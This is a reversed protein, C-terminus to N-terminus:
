QQSCGHTQQFTTPTATPKRPSGPVSPAMHRHGALCRQPELALHSVFLLLLMLMLMMLCGLSHPSFVSRGLANSRAHWAHMLKREGALDCVLCLSRLALARAARPDFRQRTGLASFRSSHSHPHTSVKDTVYHLFMAHAGLTKLDSKWSNSGWRWHMHTWQDAYLDTMLKEDAGVYLANLGYGGHKALVSAVLEFHSQNPRLMYICGRMGYSRLSQAVQEPSLRRGHMAQNSRADLITSCVGAPARLAFVSDVGGEGSGADSSEAVCLMDADLLCVKHFQTLTLVHFKTFSYDIWGYMRGGDPAAGAATFKKWEQHVARAKLLPVELVLDFLRALDSRAGSSVCPSVLVVLSARTGRSRLSQGLVLAGAVYSDGLMVLTVFACKSPDTAADVVSADSGGSVGNSSSSSASTAAATSTAASAAATTVAQDDMRKRTVWLPEDLVVDAHQEGQASRNGRGGGRGGGGGEWGAAAAGGAGAGAGAGQNRQYSGGGGGGGGGGTHADRNGWSQQQQGGGGGHRYGGGGGGGGSSYSGGDGGRPHWAGGGGSSSSSGYGGSYNSRHGSASYSSSRDATDRPQQHSDRSSSDRQGSNSSGGGGGGRRWSGGGGGSAGAGSSNNTRNMRPSRSRSRRTRESSSYNSSHSSQQRRERSRSRSRARQSTSMSDPDDTALCVCSLHCTLEISKM